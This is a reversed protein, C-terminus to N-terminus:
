YSILEWTGLILDLEHKRELKMIKKGQVPHLLFSINSETREEAETTKSKRAKNQREKESGIRRCEM